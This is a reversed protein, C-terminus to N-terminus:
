NLIPRLVIRRFEIAAGESQLAIKGPLEECWRASNQEQGNVELKLDGHDLLIRYHNWEGLPRENSPLLKETRRGSTRAPDTAMAVGDINWIDGANRSMLQCEISKPWVKDPGVVRLLVGSNGPGREPRFRWELQLEFNTYDGETRLYGLPRGECRLVGDEVSWVQRPNTDDTLYHLWGELDRGNFLEIPQGFRPERAPPATLFALLDALEQGALGLAVGEPMVSLTQKKRVEIEDVPIVHRRGQTDKLILDQGDALVFGSTIWGDLTRVVYTDYGFAIGANPNLIADLLEARGYKDGVATLDPGIDQGAGQHTHCASCQATQSYFVARGRGPDGDMALLQEVGPLDTAIGPRPFWASALARVGLDPNSFIVGGIAERAEEDLAGREALSVLFLAGDPQAALELQAVRDGGEAARQKTLLDPADTQGETWVEFEISTGCGQSTGGHDPGAQSAFRVAGKPVAFGLRSVAHTGIGEEFEDEGVRLVGGGVSRDFRTTGWGTVETEWGLTKCAVDTGDALLFRPAIWDAWDCGNGNGGDTVVLWLHASGAVDLNVEVLGASVPGSSWRRTANELGAPRDASSVEFARWDNSARQRTWWRAHARQDEPGTAGLVFMADAAQASPIFALADLLGRRTAATLNAQGALAALDAVADAPHLRWLLEAYREPDLAGSEVLLHNLQSELGRAGIGLSELSARDDGPYHRALDLLLPLRVRPELDRIVRALTARVFPSEDRALRALHPALRAPDEDMLARLATVRLEPLPHMLVSEVATRGQDSLAALLQVARAAIRPSPDGALAYLEAYALDGRALLKIRAAARLSPSPSALAEILWAHEGSLGTSVIEQPTARRQIPVDWGRNLSGKPALRLLRGYAERDGAAHGGVAPDYWDAVLISGDPLVLVDSPRFWRAHGDGPERGSEPGHGMLVSRRLYYGGGLREPFHAYVVGAGADCNLVAGDFSALPHDPYEAEYIAVGTPGGAGNITGPPMVGPDDAHWHAVPVEQGPRRDARWTRSGDTSFYGYDGGEAVWTTRCSRNGDDDNDASFLNGFSDRAVEYENRFNDALVQLGTGDPRVRLILGGVWVQGDDSVLGPQNRDNYPTGGTYLSGSRLNFGAGDRVLHPGANGVALYLWGDDGAVLSHVGHDHDFGGFGTLFVEREDAVDDGDLDTYVFINPSCSVFVRRGIVCIGLPSTLDKDQVFVKSRDARGDGNTDELIMVRDGGPHELGPNRGGWRRYNVAETVWVRGRADVDMATPNFVQPSEAWLSVGLGDPVTFRDSLDQAILPLSLLMSLVPRMM